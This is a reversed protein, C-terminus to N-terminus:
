FCRVQLLFKDLRSKFCSVTPATVISGPVSYWLNITRNTFFHSDRTSIIRPKNLKMVNGRMYSLTFRQNFNVCDVNVLHRLIKYCMVLSLRKTELRLSLGRGVNVNTFVFVSVLM